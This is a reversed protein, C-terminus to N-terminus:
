RRRRPRKKCSLSRHVSVQVDVCGDPACGENFTTLQAELATPDVSAADHKRVVLHVEAKPRVPQDLDPFPVQDFGEPLEGYDTEGTFTAQGYADAVRGTAYYVGVEALANALDDLGCACREFCRDPRNFAVFWNTYAAGPELGRTNATYGIGKRSRVLVAAGDVETFPDGGAGPLTLYPSVSTREAAGILFGLANQDREIEGAQASFTAITGALVGILIRM